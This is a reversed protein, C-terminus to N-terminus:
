NTIFIFTCYSKIVKAPVSLKQFLLEIHFLIKTSKTLIYMWSAGRCTRFFPPSKKSPLIYQVWLALQAVSHQLYPAIPITFTINVRHALHNPASKSRNFQVFRQVNIAASSIVWFYIFLLLLTLTFLYYNFFVPFFFYTPFYLDTYLIDDTYINNPLIYFEFIHSLFLIDALNYNM